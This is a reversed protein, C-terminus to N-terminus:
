IRSIDTDAPPVSITEYLGDDVLRTFVCLTDTGAHVMDLTAMPVQTRRTLTLVDDSATTDVPVSYWPCASVYVTVNPATVIDEVAV